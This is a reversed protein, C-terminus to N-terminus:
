NGTKSTEQPAAKLIRVNFVSAGRMDQPAQFKVTVKQKGKLAEVSLPYTKANSGPRGGGGGSPHETAVKVDDVFVDLASGGRGGGGFAVSLEQPVDPMVKMEWAFWGNTEAYRFTRDNFERTDTREGKFNHDREDQEEGATVVDVTRAELERRRALERKYEEQKDTWEAPTFRDWYVEYREHAAAYFPFLTVGPNQEDGPIMFTDSAGKFTNVRGSVPKLSALLVPPEAVVAPFPKRADVQACLVVPGNLVAFRNTNDKFAETRLSFPM